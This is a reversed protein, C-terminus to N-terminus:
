AFLHLIIKQRVDNDDNNQKCFCLQREKELKLLISYYDTTWLVLFINIYLTGVAYLIGELQLSSLTGNSILDEPLSDGLPYSATPLKLSQSFLMLQNIYLLIYQLIPKIQGQKLKAWNVSPSNLVLSFLYKWISHKIKIMVPRVWFWNFCFNKVLPCFYLLCINQTKCYNAIAIIILIIPKM